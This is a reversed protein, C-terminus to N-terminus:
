FAPWSMPLEKARVEVGRTRIRERARSEVDRDSCFGNRTRKLCLLGLLRDQGDVVALRRRSTADLLGKAVCLPTDDSVVRGSLRGLLRAPFHDALEQAVDDRDVSSVLRDGDTLLAMHVHDSAFVARLDGVTAAAPITKPRLMMADRVLRPEATM